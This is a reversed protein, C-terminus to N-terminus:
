FLILKVLEERALEYDKYDNSWSQFPSVVSNVIKDAEDKAGNQSALVMYEYDEMAERYLKLRISPVFGNIGAPQGPYLLM